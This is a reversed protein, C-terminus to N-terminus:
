SMILQYRMYRFITNLTQDDLDRSTEMWRSQIVKNAPSGNVTRFATKVAAIIADIRDYDAPDDQVYIQFYVTRPFVDVEALEWDTENGLRYVLYPRPLQNTTLASGLVIRTGVLASVGSDNLLTEYLWQRLSTM